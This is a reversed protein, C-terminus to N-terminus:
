VAEALRPSGERCLKGYTRKPRQQRQELVSNPWMMENATPWVCGFEAATDAYLPAIAMEARVSLSYAVIVPSADIVAFM